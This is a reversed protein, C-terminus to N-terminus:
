AIVLATASVSARNVVLKTTGDPAPQSFWPVAVTVARAAPPPAEARAKRLTVPEAVVSAVTSGAALAVSPGVAVGLAAGGLSVGVEVGSAAVGVGVDVEVGSAAVGVAVGTGVAVGVAVGV